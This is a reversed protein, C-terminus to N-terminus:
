RSRPAPTPSAGVAVAAASVPATVQSPRSRREESVIEPGHAQLIANTPVDKAAIQSQMPMMTPPNSGRHTETPRTPPSTVTDRTSAVTRQHGYNRGADGLVGALNVAATPDALLVRVM